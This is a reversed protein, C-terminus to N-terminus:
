VVGMALADTHHFALWVERGRVLSPTTSSPKVPHHLVLRQGSVEAVIQAHTGLYIIESVTGKLANMGIRPAPSTTTIEWHEPRVSIQVPTGEALPTKAIATLEGLNNSQIRCVLDNESSARGELCQCWVVHGVIFNSSGIFSAVFPTQPTEYIEQPTSIQELRGGNMVAVRDSLALAETQDHTVFV